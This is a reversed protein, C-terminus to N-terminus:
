FVRLCMIFAPFGVIQHHPDPVLRRLRATIGSIGIGFSIVYDGQDRDRCRRAAVAQRVQLCHRARHGVSRGEM